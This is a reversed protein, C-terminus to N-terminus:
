DEEDSAEDLNMPQEWWFQRPSSGQHREAEMCFTYIPRDRIFTTVTERRVSIYHEEITHLGVEEFVDDTAPYLWEGDSELDPHPVHWLIASSWSAGYHVM